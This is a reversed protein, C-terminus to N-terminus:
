EIRWHGDFVLYGSTNGDGANIFVFDGDSVDCEQHAQDWYYPDNLVEYLKDSTTYHWMTFGNAYALCNLDMKNFM